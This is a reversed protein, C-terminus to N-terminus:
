VQLLMDVATTTAKIFYRNRSFVRSCSFTSRVIFKTKKQGLSKSDSMADSHFKTHPRKM